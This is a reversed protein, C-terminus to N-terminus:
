LIAGYGRRRGGHLQVNQQAGFYTSTQQQCNGEPGSGPGEDALPTDQAFLMDEDGDEWGFLDVPNSGFVMQYASFGNASLMNDFEVPGGGSDHFQFASRRRRSVQLHKTGVWESTRIVM